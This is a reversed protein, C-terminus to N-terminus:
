ARQQKSYQKLDREYPLDFRGRLPSYEGIASFRGCVHVDASYVIRKVIKVQACRVRIGVEARLVPKQTMQTRILEIELLGKPNVPRERCALGGSEM